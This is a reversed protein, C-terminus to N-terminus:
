ASAAEPEFTLDAYYEGELGASPLWISRGATEAQNKTAVGLRLRQREGDVVLWPAERALVLDRVFLERPYDRFTARSPANWFRPPQRDLVLQAYTEVVNLRGGVPRRVRSAVLKRWTAQLEALFAPVDLTREVVRRRAQEHAKLLPGVSLPLPRSVPERGYLWQATRGPVDLQLVLPEVVLAPPRGSVAHGRDELGARLAGAFEYALADLARGTAEDFAAVAAELEPSSWHEAALRLKAAAKQMALADPPEEATLRTATRLAATAM